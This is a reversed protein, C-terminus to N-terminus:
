PRDDMVFRVFAGHPKDSVAAEGATLVARWADPYDTRFAAEGTDGIVTSRAAAPIVQV